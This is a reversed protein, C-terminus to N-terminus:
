PRRKADSPTNPHQLLQSKLHAQRKVLPQRLLHAILAPPTAPFRALSQILMISAYTRSCLISTTRSDFTLGVMAALVRGETSWVVDVREEAQAKAFRARFLARAAARTREPVDRDQAARHIDLLRKAAMLRRLMGERLAPNRVLRRHVMPDSALAARRVIEELGRASRHHFAVLRAHELTAAANALLAAIVAPDPDFCLASLEAGEARGARAEREGAALPRLEAEFLRRYARTEPADEAESADEGVAAEAECGPAAEGPLLGDVAADLLAVLGEDASPPDDVPLAARGAPEADLPIPTGAAGDILGLRVLRAVVAEVHAVPLGTAAALTAPSAGAFHGLMVTTEEESLEVPAAAREPEDVMRRRLM